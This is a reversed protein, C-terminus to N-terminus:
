LGLGSSLACLMFRTLDLILSKTQFLCVELRLQVQLFVHVTLLKEISYVPEIRKKVGYM